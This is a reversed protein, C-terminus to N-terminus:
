NFSAVAAVDIKGSSNIIVKKSYGGSPMEDEIAPYGVVTTESFTKNEPYFSISGSKGTAQVEFNKLTNLYSFSIKGSNSSINNEGKIHSANVTIDGSRTRLNFNASDYPVMLMTAQKTKLFISGSITEAEVDATAEGLKINGSSTKIYAKGQIKEIEVNSKNAKEIDIKSMTFAGTVHKIKVFLNEAAGNDEIFGDVKNLTVDGKKVQMIFGNLGSTGLEDGGINVLNGSVVAGGNATLKKFTINGNELEAKFSQTLEIDKDIKINTNETSKVWIRDTVTATKSLTLNGTETELLIRSLTLDSATSSSKAKTAVNLGASKSQVEVATPIERSKLYVDIRSSNTLVLGPTTDMATITLDSGNFSKTAYFEKDVDGVKGFGTIDRVIDIRDEEGSYIVNVHMGNTKIILKGLTAFNISTGVELRTLINGSGDVFDIKANNNSVSDIGNYNRLMITTKSNVYQYGFIEVDPSMMMIAGGVLVIAVVIVFFILLYSLFGKNVQNKM